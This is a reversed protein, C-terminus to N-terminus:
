KDLIVRTRGRADVVTRVEGKDIRRYVTTREIGLRRAAEAVSVGAVDATAPSAGKGEQVAAKAKLRAAEASFIGAPGASDAIQQWSLGAAFCEHMTLALARERDKAETRAEVVQRAAQEVRETLATAESPTLRGRGRRNSTPESVSWDNWAGVGTALGSAAHRRPGRRGSSGLRPPPTGEGRSTMPM